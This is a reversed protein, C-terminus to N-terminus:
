KVENRLLTFEGRPNDQSVYGVAIGLDWFYNNRPTYGMRVANADFSQLVDEHTKAGWDYYTPWSEKEHAASQLRIALYHKAPDFPPKNQALEELLTM